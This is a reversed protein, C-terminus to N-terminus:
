FQGDVLLCITASFIRYVILFCEEADDSSDSITLHVKPIRGITSKDAMNPPGLLFRIGYWHIGCVHAAKMFIHMALNPGKDNFNQNCVIQGHFSIVAQIMTCATIYALPWHLPIPCNWCRVDWIGRFWNHHFKFSIVVVWLGGVIFICKRIIVHAINPFVWNAVTLKNREKKQDKTVRM